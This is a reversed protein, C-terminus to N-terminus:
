SWSSFGIQIQIEIKTAEVRIFLISFLTVKLKYTNNKASDNITAEQMYMYMIWVFHGHM